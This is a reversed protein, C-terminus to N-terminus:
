AEAGASASVPTIGPPVDVLSGSRLRTVMMEFIAPDKEIVVFRRDNKRAAVPVSGSGGFPDFVYDGPNTHAQIPIEVLKIPKQAEHLKGKLIETIDDWVNSRRLYESRAPHNKDYGEYGRLKELLPVNFILPKKIDPGRHLVAAEERCFLFNHQIGYARRKKWTIHNALLFDGDMEVEVLYRYFPRFLPKGIGGWIWMHGRPEVIKAFKKTWDLMWTAFASDRVEVRDWYASVIGGYPPDAQILKFGHKGIHRSVYSLVGSETSDGCIAIGDDFEAVGNM